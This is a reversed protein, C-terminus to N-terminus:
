FGSFTTGKKVSLIGILSSTEKGLYMFNCVYIDTTIQARTKIYKRIRDYKQHDLRINSREQHILKLKKVNQMKNNQEEVEKEKKQAGEIVESKNNIDSKINIDNPGSLGKLCQTFLYNKKRPM